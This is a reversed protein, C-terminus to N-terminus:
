ILQVLCFPKCNQQKSNEIWRVRRGGQRSVLAVLEFCVIFNFEALFNVRMAMTHVKETKTRIVINLSRPNTKRVNKLTVLSLSADLLVCTLPFFSDLKVM